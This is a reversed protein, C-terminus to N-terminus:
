LVAGPQAATKHPMARVSSSSSSWVAYQQYRTNECPLLQHQPNKAESAKGIIQQARL